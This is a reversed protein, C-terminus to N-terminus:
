VAKNGKSSEKYLPTDNYDDDSTDEYSYEFDEKQATSKGKSIQHSLPEKLYNRKYTQKEQYSM